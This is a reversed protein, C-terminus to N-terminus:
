AQFLIAWYRRLFSINQLDVVDLQVKPPKECDWASKLSRLFFMIKVHGSTKVNTKHIKM